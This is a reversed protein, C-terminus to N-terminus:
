EKNNNQIKEALREREEFSAKPGLLTTIYGPYKEFYIRDKAWIERFKVELGHIPYLKLHAHDIGLGEMVLAVRKVKLGKELLRVVKKGALLYRKYEEDEMDFIYSNHHQKTLVLTVGEVNPNGDLIALFEDDEWIRVSREEGKIIKCFVCDDM